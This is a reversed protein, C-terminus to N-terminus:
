SAAWPPTVPWLAQEEATVAATQAPGVAAPLNPPAYPTDPKGYVVCPRGRKALTLRHVREGVHVRMPDPVNAFARHDFRIDEAAVTPVNVSGTVGAVLRHAGLALALVLAKCKM